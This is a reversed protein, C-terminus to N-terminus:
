PGLEVQYISAPGTEYVLRLYTRDAPCFDGLALEDPGCFVYSIGYDRLLQRRFSEDGPGFFRTVMVQKAESYATESAHGLFVRAGMRTPLANGSPRSALVVQDAGAHAGLWDAANVLWGPQFIPPARRSVELSVGALITLNSLSLLVVLGTAAIRWGIGPRGSRAGDLGGLWRWLGLGALLALPVQVGLAMRRELNFPVYVLLPVVACWGILLRSRASAARWEGAAGVLALALLPGFSLLYHVPAPSLILNQESWAKFIPNTSFVYANYLAVLAAPFSALAALGLERGIGWVSGAWWARLLLAAGIVAVAVGPYFAAVLAAVTLALAAAGAYALRQREWAMLLWLIAWLTCALALSLHPLGFLMLFAFAEPSYFDLPLGLQPLLGTLMVLWRLRTFFAAFCYVTGLLLGGCALRALHYALILSLGSLRALKGLLIHFLLLYAGAHPESTYFLHFQWSGTAGLRMKALYSNGDEVGLVFGGFQNQPTSLLAGYLYPLSTVLLIAAGWAAVWRWESRSICIGDEM